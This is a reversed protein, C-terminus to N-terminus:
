TLPFEFGTRDLELNEKGAEEVDFSNSKNKYTRLSRKENTGLM